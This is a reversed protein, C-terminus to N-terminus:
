SSRFSIIIELSEAKLDLFCVQLLYSPSYESWQFVNKWYSWLVESLSCIARKHQHVWLEIHWVTDHCTECSTESQVAVIFAHLRQHQISKCLIVVKLLIGLFSELWTMPMGIFHQSDKAFTIAQTTFATIIQLFSYSWLRIGVRVTLQVNM